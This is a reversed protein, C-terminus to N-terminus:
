LSYGLLYKEPVLEPINWKKLFGLSRKTPSPVLTTSMTKIKLNENLKKRGKLM